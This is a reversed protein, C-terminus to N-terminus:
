KIVFEKLYCINIIDCKVAISPNIIKGLEGYSRNIIKCNFNQEIEKQFKEIVIERASLSLKGIEKWFETEQINM